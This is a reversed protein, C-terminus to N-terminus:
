DILYLRTDKEYKEYQEPLNDHYARFIELVNVSKSVSCAAGADSFGGWARSIDCSRYRFKVPESTCRTASFLASILFLECQRLFERVTSPDSSCLVFECLLIDRACIIAPKRVHFFRAHLRLVSRSWVLSRHGVCRTRWKTHEELHTRSLIVRRSAEEGAKRAPPVISIGFIIRSRRSIRTRSFLLDRTEKNERKKRENVISEDFSRSFYELMISLLSCCRPFAFFGKELRYFSLPSWAGNSRPLFM